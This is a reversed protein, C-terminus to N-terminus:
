RELSAMAKSAKKSYKSSPFRTTLETLYKLSREKDNLEMYAIGTLYLLEPSKKFDPFNERLSEFRSVAASYSDKKYYFKGVLFEYEAIFDRCKSIKLKVSERYPNRPYDRLLTQFEVLAKRAGGAGKDPSKIQDYYILAIQYQAYPTQTHHPYLQIFSRYANIALEPMEELLFSEAIKLQAIPAFRKTLDRNKVEFLIKRSEEYFGDDMLDAVEQLAARADYAEERVLEKGSCSLLLLPLIILIM